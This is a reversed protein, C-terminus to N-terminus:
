ACIRRPDDAVFRFKKEVLAQEFTSEASVTKEDQNNPVLGSILLMSPVNTVSMIYFSFGQINMIGLPQQAFPLPMGNGDREIQLDLLGADLNIGGTNSSVQNNPYHKGMMADGLGNKVLAFRIEEFVRFGRLLIADESPNYLTVNSDVTNGNEVYARVVGRTGGVGQVLIHLTKEEKPSYLSTIQGGFALKEIQDTDLPRKADIMRVQVSPDEIIRQSILIPSEKEVFDVLNRVPLISFEEGVSVGYAEEVRSQIWIFDGPEVGNGVPTKDIHIQSISDISAKRVVTVIFQRIANELQLRNTVNSSSKKGGLLANRRDIIEASSDYVTNGSEKFTWDPDHGPFGFEHVTEKARPDFRSFLIKGGGFPKTDTKIDSSARTATPLQKLPDAPEDFDGPSDTPEYGDPGKQFVYGERGIAFIESPLQSSYSGWDKYPIKEDGFKGFINDFNVGEQGSLYSVVDHYTKLGSSVVKIEVPIFIDQFNDTWTGYSGLQVGVYATKEDNLRLGLGNATLDGLFIYLPWKGEPWRIKEDTDRYPTNQDDGEFRGSTNQLFMGYEEVASAVVDSPTKLLSIAAATPPTQTVEVGLKRLNNLDQVKKNLAEQITVDGPMKKGNYSALYRNEGESLQVFISKGYLLGVDLSSMLSLVNGVGSFDKAMVKKFEEVSLFNWGSGSGKPSIYIRHVGELDSMASGIISIIDNMFDDVTLIGSSAFSAKVLNVVMHGTTQDIDMMEWSGLSVTWRNELFFRLSEADSSTAFGMGRLTESLDVEGGADIEELVFTIGKEVSEAIDKRSPKGIGSSSQGEVDGIEGLGIDIKTFDGGKRGHVGNADMDSRAPVVNQVMGRLPIGSSSFATAGGSFYKRPINKGTQADHEVKIYDYVGKKFSEIYQDYIKQTADTDKIEIGKTKGQDVYIQGLLSEKLNNKYWAALIMANYIQRLNAFNKGSNVEKEIEPILIERVIDSALKNQSADSTFRSDHAESKVKLMERSRSLALFDEEMMVELKSDIVFVRNDHEYVKATKPVIWVKNFTNLPIDTTGFKEYVTKYIKDWFKKGLEDEPYILSATLQKLIYDQALLDRGMQTKGLNDSVIRNEEYPSLNVWMDEEPTTLCALFYRILKKAEETLDEGQFETDGNDVIFGFQLPNEPNIELARVLVPFFGPTPSVITGPVPLASLSQAYSPAISSLLFCVAIFISVIKSALSKQSKEFYVIM